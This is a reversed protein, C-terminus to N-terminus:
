THMMTTWFVSFLETIWRTGQSRVPRNGGKPLDFVEKLRDIISDLERSKKTLREYLSHLRLLMEEILSFLLM